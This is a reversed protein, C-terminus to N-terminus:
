IILKKQLLQNQLILMLIGIKLLDGIIFPFLGQELLKWLSISKNSIVTFWLFLFFLGLSYVVIFNVTLLLVLTKRLSQQNRELKETVKGTLYSAVIFGILYGGSAGFLVSIGANKGTFWPIGIIGLLIYICQSLCGYLAGLFIGSGLVALTQLTIPIPTWPLYIRIQAFLGTLCATLFALFIKTIHSENRLFLLSSLKLNNINFVRTVMKRM